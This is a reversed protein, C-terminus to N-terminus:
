APYIQALALGRSTVNVMPTIVVFLALFIGCSKEVKTWHLFDWSIILIEPIINV